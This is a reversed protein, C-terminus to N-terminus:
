QSFREPIVGNGMREAEEPLPISDSTGRVPVDTGITRSRFRHQNSQGLRAGPFVYESSLFWIIKYGVLSLIIKVIQATM